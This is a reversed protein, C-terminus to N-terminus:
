ASLACYQHWSAMGGRLSQATNFGNQRLWQAAMLSRAGHACIIVLHDVDPLKDLYQPLMNLPINPSDGAPARAVEAFTRVDVFARDLNNRELTHLGNADIELPLPATSM